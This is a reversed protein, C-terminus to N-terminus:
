NVMIIRKSTGVYEDAGRDWSGTRTDGDIDDSFLGSSQDSTQDKWTTDSAQLHFDDSGENVFTPTSESNGTGGGVTGNEADTVSAYGMNYTNVTGYRQKVGIYSNHITNNYANLTLSSNADGDDHIAWMNTEAGNVIDYIINNWIKADQDGSVTSLVYIGGSWSASGSFAGKIINNSIRLEGGTTTYYAVTIGYDEGGSTTSTVKIQLGDIWLDYIKDESKIGVDDTVELKYATASNGYIGNHRALGSTQILLYQGASFDTTVSNDVTVPTTDTYGTWDGQIDIVGKIDSSVFSPYTFSFYDVATKLATFDCGSPCVTKTITSTAFVPNALLLFILTYALSKKM